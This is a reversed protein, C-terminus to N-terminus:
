AGSMFISPPLLINSLINPSLTNKPPPAHHIITNNKKNKANPSVHTSISIDAHIGNKINNNITHEDISPKSMLKTIILKDFM